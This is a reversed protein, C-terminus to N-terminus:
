TNNLTSRELGSQRDKFRTGPLEKMDRLGHEHWTKLEQCLITRTVEETNRVSLRPQEGCM